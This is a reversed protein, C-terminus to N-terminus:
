ERPTMWNIKRQNSLLVDIFWRIQISSNIHFVRQTIQQFQKYGEALNPIQGCNMVGIVGFIQRGLEIDELPGLDRNYSQVFEYFLSGDHFLQDNFKGSVSQRADPVTLEGLAVCSIGSIINFYRNFSEVTQPYIPVVIVKVRCGQLLPTPKM